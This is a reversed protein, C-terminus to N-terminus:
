NEIWEIFNDCGGIYVGDVFIQPATKPVKGTMEQWEWMSPEYFNREEIDYGYENAVEKAKDCYKCPNITYIVLM